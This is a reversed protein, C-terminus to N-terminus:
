IFYLIFFRLVIFAVVAGAGISLFRIYPRLGFKGGLFLGAFSAVMVGIMVLLVPYLPEVGILGLGFGVFVSNFSGALSMLMMTRPTDALVIREEPNFRMSQTVMKVGIIFLLAYAMSTYTWPMIGAGFTGALLGLAFLVSKSVTLYVPLMVPLKERLKAHISGSYWSTTFSETVIALIILILIFPVFM